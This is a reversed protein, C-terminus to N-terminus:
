SAQTIKNYWCDFYGFYSFVLLPFLCYSTTKPSFRYLATLFVWFLFFCAFSVPMLFHSQTFVLIHFGFDGLNILLSPHNQQILLRFVWFLFCVLRSIPILSVNKPFNNMFAISVGLIPFLYAPFPLYYTACSANDRTKQMISLM